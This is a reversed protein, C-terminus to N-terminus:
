EAPVFILDACANRFGCRKETKGFQKVPFAGRQGTSLLLKHTQRRGHHQPRVNKQQVLRGRLQVRDGGLLKETNQAADIRLEAHGYEQGFMPQLLNKRQTVTNQNQFVASQGGIVARVSDGTM